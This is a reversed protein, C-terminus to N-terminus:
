GNDIGYKINYKFNKIKQYAYYIIRLIGLIIM